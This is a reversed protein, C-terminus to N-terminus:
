KANLRKKQFKKSFRGNINLEFENNGYKCGSNHNKASNNGEPFYNLYQSGTMHSRAFVGQGIFVSRIRAESFKIWGRLFDIFRHFNLRVDTSGVQCAPDWNRGIKASNFNFWGFFKALMKLTPHCALYGCCVM